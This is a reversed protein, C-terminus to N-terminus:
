KDKWDLFHLVIDKKSGGLDYYIGVGHLVKMTSLLNISFKSSPDNDELFLFRSNEVGLLLFDSKRASSMVVKGEFV